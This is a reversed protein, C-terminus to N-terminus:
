NIPGKGAEYRNLGWGRWPEEEAHYNGNLTPAHLTAIEVPSRGSVAGSFITVYTISNPAPLGNRYHPMVVLCVTCGGANIHDRIPREITQWITQQNFAREQTVLNQLRNHGGFVKGILHGANAAAPVLANAARKGPPMLTADEGAELRKIVAAALTARGLTDTNGYFISNGGISFRSLSACLKIRKDSTTGEQIMEMVSELQRANVFKALADGLMAGAFGGGVGPPLNVPPKSVPRPARPSPVQPASPLPATTAAHEGIADLSSIADGNVFSYLNTGGTEEIPDRGLWRGLHPTYFRMGYYLLGTENDTFKTSFRFPLMDQMPGEAVLTEGFAGYEYTASKAGTAMDVYAIVNGNGDFAPAHTSTSAGLQLSAFLLGGVGGAAQASGSLDLGWAYTRVAANANLANLEAILNWGDYLFKTHQVLVWGGPSWNSVKKAIRRGLGDYAFELKRREILPFQGLPPVIDARTEMFVLRNEGDWTYTWRGDQTLNGDADHTYTEPTKPLWAKRDAVAVADTGGPGAGARVGSVAFDFWAGTQTNFGTASFHWAEGQRTVSQGNVTVTADTVASGLVDVVAPVTRSSYQNLLNPTYTSTQANLTATKRNGIDDFTWGHDLGLIATGGSLKKVASTVQGLSDYGYDWYANDERTLRTRQNASNYQYAASIAAVASPTNTIGSLRNLNDYSKITTLRTSGGQKSTISGVLTSDALYGYTATNAGSTVTDLRSATDYAYGIQNLVSAGNLASLSSLRALSDFDRDLSLGDLQGGAYTETDLQGNTHYAWTSVGAADTRTLPRGARDYAITVSPTADSYTWGAPDGAAGYTYTTTIGRAWTRTLLRGSPKYTYSPGTNDHYRKNLLFGRTPTYNWTTTAIGSNGAHNQWTKLTKLRGQTDYTYEVPYTRAGSVKKVLGSSYYETTVVAGDPQTVTSQRGATDYGFTTVQADYGPGSQNPDPDPTTVTHLQDDNFWAYTTAGTRADTQTFLRGHPDYAYVTSSLTGLSARTTAVSQLRDAAFVQTTVTDDAATTVVTRGGAGDLTTVSTNLLGRVTQWSRLGDLTAESVSVVTPTDQSETEWVETTSRQVTFTDRTGIETTTRTVRDTGGLDIVGNGNIDVAAVEQEGEANYAFLTAIGDADVQRVLQGLANYHSTEVAGDAYVRKSSRGAFDAYTKVWETTEGSGGVRIEKTFAGDADVGYEYSLRQPAATGTVSLLSGDKHYTSVITGSDPTTTTRVTRGNGDITEAFSTQRNLADRSWVLRGATDYDHSETTIESDDTGIRKASLLRGEPDLTRDQKIGTRTERDVQGLANFRYFTTIGQRDTVQDLGCCAYSRLEYTGDLFDIRTPRGLSDTQTVVESTLLTDSPHDFVDRSVMKGLLTEVLVTRTGAVVSTGAGNAEGHHTTTTLTTSDAAYAYTTLTGDPRLESVPRGLWIGSDISSRKTVLNTAADWAAGTVTCRINWRKEIDAGFATGLQSFTVEYSRGVEQGLLSEITTVLKEPQSDGDQDAITSHTVATVRNLNDASASATDLFQTVTTAPRGASDYTYRTWRGSPEVMLKVQGYAAGDTTANTYYTYSTTLNAGGHDVIRQNVNLGFAYAQKVERVVSVTQNSADKITRTETVISGAVDKKLQEIRLGNGASMEMTATATDYAFLTVKTSSGRTESFRIRNTATGADPNEVLYAVFPQGSVAYLGTGGDLAGVQTPLYYRLEYSEATLTVVDVLAAPAKVQRLVDSQKVVILEPSTEALLQLAAPTYLESSVSTAAVALLGAGAGDTRKGLYFHMDVSKNAATSDGAERRACDELSRATVKILKVQEGQKLEFHYPQYDIVYPADKFEKTETRTVFGAPEPAGIAWQKYYYTILYKGAGLCPECFQAMFKARRAHAKLPSLRTMQGNTIAAQVADASPFNDWYQLSDGDITKHAEGYAKADDLSVDGSLTETVNRSDSDTGVFRRSTASVIEPGGTESGVSGIGIRRETFNRDENIYGNQIHYSLSKSTSDTGSVPNFSWTGSWVMNSLTTTVGTFIDTSTYGGSGSWTESAYKAPPTTGSLTYPFFGVKQIPLVESQFVIKKAEFENEACTQADVRLAVILALLSAILRSALYPRSSM